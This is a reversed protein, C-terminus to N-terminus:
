SSNKNASSYDEIIITLQTTNDTEIKEKMGLYQKSLWMLLNAQGPIPLPGSQTAMTYMKDRLQQRGLARGQECAKGFLRQLKEVPVGLIEAIEEDTCQQVSLSNVLEKQTKRDLKMVYENYCAM